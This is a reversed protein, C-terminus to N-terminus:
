GVKKYKHPNAFDLIEDTTYRGKCQSLNQKIISNKFASEIQLWREVLEESAKEEKLAEILLQNRLEFVEETIMIHPHADKPNRGSYVREGGLAGIMFDVQQREIHEQPTNKFYLKLWPHLYVKDYFTKVVRQLYPKGGIKEFLTM